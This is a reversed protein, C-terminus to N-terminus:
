NLPCGLNNATDLLNKTAEYNNSSLAAAVMAKVEAETYYSNVGDSAANLLAAVAARALANAGGGNLGLAQLLTLDAPLDDNAGFVTSFLMDPSYGTGAWSDLHQPQKWYGPTCGQNGRDKTNTFIVLTGFNESVPGSVENGSGSTTSTTTNGTTGSIVTKEWSATYGTPVQETVTVTAGPPGIVQIEKCEGDALTVSGTADVSGNSGIDEEIDITVAPGVEGVYEKCVEFRELQAQGDGPQAPNLIALEPNRPGVGSGDTCAIALTGGIVLAFHRRLRYQRSM